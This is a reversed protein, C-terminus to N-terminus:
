MESHNESHNAPNCLYITLPALEAPKINNKRPKSKGSILASSNKQASPKQPKRKQATVCRQKVYKTLKPNPFRDTHVYWFLEGRASILKFRELAEEEWGPSMKGMPTLAILEWGQYICHVPLTQSFKCTRYAKTPEPFTYYIIITHLCDPDVVILKPGDGQSSNNESRNGHSKNIQSRNGHTKDIRSGNNQSRNEGPSSKQDHDQPYSKSTFPKPTYSKIFAGALMFANNRPSLSDARYNAYLLQAHSLAIFVILASGFSFLFAQHLPMAEANKYRTSSNKRHNKSFTSTTKRVGPSVSPKVGIGGAIVLASFMPILFVLYYANLRLWLVAIGLATIGGLTIITVFIARQRTKKDANWRFIGVAALVFSVLGAARTSSLTQLWVRWLQLPTKEGWINLPFARATERTTMDAAIAGAGSWIVPISLLGVAFFGAWLPKNKRTKPNILATLIHASVVAPALYYSYMMATELLIWLVLVSLSARRDKGRYTSEMLKFFLHSSALCLFTFLTIDSVDGAHRLFPVSLATLLAAALSRVAGLTPRLFFFLMAVSALGFIAGPLRMIWEEHGFLHFLSLILYFLPPHRADPYDHTIIRSVDLSGFFVRQTMYDADFPANLSPALVFATIVLVTMLFPLPHSSIFEEIKELSTKGGRNTLLVFLITFIFSSILVFIFPIEAQYAGHPPSSLSSTSSPSIFPGLRISNDDNKNLRTCLSQMARSITEPTTKPAQKEKLYVVNFSQTRCFAGKSKDLATLRVRLTDPSELLEKEAPADGPIESGQLQQLPTRQLPIRGLTVYIAGPTKLDISQLEYIGFRYYKDVSISDATKKRASVPAFLRLVARKTVGTDPTGARASPKSCIFLLVFLTVSIVLMLDSIKRTCTFRQRQNKPVYGNPILNPEGRENM